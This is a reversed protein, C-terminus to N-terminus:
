GGRARGVGSGGFAVGSGGRARGVGTGGTTATLPFGHVAGASLHSVVGSPVSLHVVWGFQQASLESGALTIGRGVVPVWLGADLRRRVRSYTWGEQRAQQATFVGAQMEAVRPPQEDALSRLRRGPGVDGASAAFEDETKTMGRRHRSTSDSTHQHGSRHVFGM